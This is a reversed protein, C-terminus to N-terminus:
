NMTSIPKVYTNYPAQLIGKYYDIDEDRVYIDFTYRISRFAGVLGDDIKGRFIVKKLKIPNYAFYKDIQKVNQGIDITELFANSFKTGITMVTDPITISTFLSQNLVDNDITKVSNPIITSTKVQDCSLLKTKDKSLLFNGVKSYNISNEDVIFNKIYVNSHLNVLSAENSVILNDAVLIRSDFKYQIHINTARISDVKLAVKPFTISELGSFDGIKIDQLGIFYQLEDFTTAKVSSLNANNFEESTIQAAEEYSIKGDKDKDFNALVWDQINKDKFTIYKSDTTPNVTITNDEPQKNSSYNNEINIIATVRIVGM